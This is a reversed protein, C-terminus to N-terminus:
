TTYKRQASALRVFNGCKLCCSSSTGEKRPIHWCNVCRVRYKKYRIGCANCLPTGDEADRWMPTKRTCCSACVKGEPPVSLFMFSFLKLLSIFLCVYRYKSTILLRCQERSDDLETDIRFTVGQFDPDQIDVSRSPHPQKRPTKARWRQALPSFIEEQQEPKSKSTVNCFIVQADPPSNEEILAHTLEPKSGTTRSVQKPDSHCKKTISLLSTSGSIPLTSSSPLQTEFPPEIILAINANYDLTVAPKSPAVSADEDPNFSLQINQSANSTHMQSLAVPQRNISAKAEKRARCDLQSSATAKEEVLEPTVTDTKEMTEQEVSFAVNSDKYHPKFNSNGKTCDGKVDDVHSFSATTDQRDYILPPRLAADSSVSDSRNGPETVDEAAALSKSLFSGLTTFSSVSSPDSDERRHLLRECHLNILSLVKWPSNCERRPEIM